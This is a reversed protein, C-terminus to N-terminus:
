AAEAPELIRAASAEIRRAWGDLLDGPDQRESRLPLPASAMGVPRVIEQLARRMNSAVLDGSPGHGLRHIDGAITYLQELAGVFANLSAVADVGAQKMAPCLELARRARARDGETEAEQTLEVIQRKKAHVAARVNDAELHAQLSETTLRDLRAREPTGVKALVGSPSAATRNADVEGLYGNVTALRRELEALDRQARDLLDM